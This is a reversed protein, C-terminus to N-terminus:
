QAHYHIVVDLPAGGPSQTDLAINLKDATTRFQAPRGAITISDITLAGSDLVIERLDGSLPAMRLTAVGLLRQQPLDFSLELKLHQLDFDHSRAYSPKENFPSQALASFLPLLLLAARM